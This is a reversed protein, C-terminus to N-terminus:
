RQRKPIANGLKTAGASIQSGSNIEKMGCGLGLEAGARPSQTGESVCGEGGVVEARIPWALGACTCHLACVPTRHPGSPTDCSTVSAESSHEGGPRRHTSLFWSAVPM